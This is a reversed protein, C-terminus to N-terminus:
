CSNCLLFPHFQFLFFEFFVGFFGSSGLCVSGLYGMYSFWM